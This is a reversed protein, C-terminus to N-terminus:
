IFNLKKEATEAKKIVDDKILLKKNGWGKIKIRKRNIGKVVLVEKILQARYESLYQSNKEKSSAHGQLEVMMTPNKTLYKVIDKIIYNYTKFQTSDIQNLSDNCTLIQDTSFLFPYIIRECGYVPTLSFNKEFLTKTYLEFHGTDRTALFGYEDFTKSKTYKDTGISVTCTLPSDIFFNFKYAGASDTIFLLNVQNSLKLFVNVKEIPEHNDRDTVQGKITIYSTKSFANFTIFLFLLLSFFSKM